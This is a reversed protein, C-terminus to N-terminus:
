LKAQCAVPKPLAARVPERIGDPGGIRVLQGRWGSGSVSASGTVTPHVNTATVHPQPLTLDVASMGALLGIVQGCCPDRMGIFRPRGVYHPQAPNFLAGDVLKTGLDDNVTKAWARLSTNSAPQTLMFWLRSRIGQSLGTKATPAFVCAAEHFESPLQHRVFEAQSALSGRLIHDPAPLDDVDVALWSRHCDQLVADEGRFQRRYELSADLGPKLSGRLLVADQRSALPTLIAAIAEVSTFEM